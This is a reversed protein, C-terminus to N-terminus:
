FFYRPLPMKRGIKMLPKKKNEAFDIFSLQLLCTEMATEFEVTSLNQNTQDVAVHMSCAPNFVLLLLIQLKTLRRPIFTPLCDAPLYFCFIFYM